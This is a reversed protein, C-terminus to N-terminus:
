EKRPGRKPPLRPNVTKSPTAATSDQCARFRPSQGARGFHDDCKPPKLDRHTIGKAHAAALAKTLPIAIELLESLSLGEERVVDALTRGEVLEM